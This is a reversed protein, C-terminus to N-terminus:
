FLKNEADDQIKWGRQEFQARAGEDMRGSIWLEKGTTGPLNGLDKELSNIKDELKKTWFVYDVPALLVLRGDKRKLYLVGSALQIREAPGIRAHYGAMMQALLRNYLAVSKNAALNAKGLFVERGKVGTMSDLEGVLLTKEQPDYEYNDLFAEILSSGIGMKELKKKNIKRLEGPPNDRVLKKMSNATGSIRMVMVVDSDIAAMAARPALGGAVAARSIEGLRDMAPEYDSYPDIGFEYAFKRKATDYGVAASLPNAQDPDDSVFSRGVNSLFQGTGKAIGKTTEVPSTVMAAAGQVPAKVGEVVAEGFVNKREMIEMADLANLEMIRIMLLATSEVRLSGYDTTLQYTNILGDNQVNDEVLYNEGKLLTKPLVNEAKLTVPIPHYNESAWSTGASLCFVAALGFLHLGFLRSSRRV